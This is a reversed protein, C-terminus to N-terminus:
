VLTPFRDRTKTARRDQGPLVETEGEALAGSTLHGHGRSLKNNRRLLHSLGRDQNVIRRHQKPQGSDPHLMDIKILVAATHHM